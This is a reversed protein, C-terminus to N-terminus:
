QNTIKKRLYIVYLLHTITALIICCPIIFVQDLRTFNYVGLIRDLIDFFSFWCVAFEFIYTEKYRVKFFARAFSLFLLGSYINMTLANSGDWDGTITKLNPYFFYCLPDRLVFLLCVLISTILRIM